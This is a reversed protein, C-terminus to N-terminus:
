EMAKQIREAQKLAYEQLKAADEATINEAVKAAKEAFAQVEGMLEQLKAMDGEKAAKAADVYKDVFADYEKMYEDLASNGTAPATVSGSAADQKKDGCATFGIAVIALIPLIFKMM